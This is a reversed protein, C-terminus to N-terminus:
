RCPSNLRALSLTQSAWRGPYSRGLGNLLHVARANQDLAQVESLRRPVARDLLAGRRNGQLPFYTAALGVAILCPWSLAVATGVGDVQVLEVARMSVGVAVTGRPLSWSRPTPILSHARTSFSGIEASVLCDIAPDRLWPQGHDGM